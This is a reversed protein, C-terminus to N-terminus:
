GAHWADKQSPAPVARMESLREALVYMGLSDRECYRLMSEVIRQADQPKDKILAVQLYAWQAESGNQVGQLDKYTLEPAVAALTPKISFSGAMDPHYYCDKVMPLLDVLRSIWREILARHQPIREALYQLRGKEYTAFYVIISGSTGDGLVHKMAQLCAWSPDDGTTDLFEDHRLPAGPADQTHCSWQFPVQEFPAVDKWVPLALDIGEFDFYRRPYEIADIDAAAAADFVPKGTAHALQMRRYLASHKPDSGSALDEQPVETLSRYGHATLRRALAKGAVDPLLTLPPPADDEAEIAKCHGAFPCPHPTKCHAGTSASPMEQTSIVARTKEVWEFVQPQLDRAEDTVDVQEFADSVWPGMQKLPRAQDLRFAPNLLNLHVAVIPLGAREFAFLQVAADEIYQSDPKKHRGASDRKATSAKTEELIFGNNRRLLADARCNLREPAIVPVEM